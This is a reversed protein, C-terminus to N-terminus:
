TTMLVEAGWGAADRGPLDARRQLRRQRRGARRGRRHVSMGDIVCHDGIPAGAAVICGRLTCHAGISAGAMVVSSEITTGEGVVVGHELVARGGIRAGAGIRCARRSSRPRSSGGTSSSGTRSACSPRRGDARGVELSVSGELIDFTAELYREPTGIDKWYGPSSTGSCGTASSRAPVRRARDLGARGSGAAVAGVERARVCGRLHQEHRDPGARAERRVRDGVRRGGAARARLCLSGRGPVAGADRARGTRPTRRWSRRRRRHRDARRRQADPLPRRAPGRRIEAGWRYGVPAAGGPLAAARGRVRRGRAGLARRRGSARLVDRRRRRRARAALRDHLRHVAPRRAPRGAEAGDVDAAAAAHGRRRRPDAGADPEQGGRGIGEYVLGAARM